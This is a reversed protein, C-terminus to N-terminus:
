LSPNYLPAANVLESLAGHAAGFRCGLGLVAKDHERRCTCADASRFWYCLEIAALALFKLAVSLFM